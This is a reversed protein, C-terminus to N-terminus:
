LLSVSFDWGCKGRRVLMFRSDTEVVPCTVMIGVWTRFLCKIKYKIALQLINSNLYVFTAGPENYCLVIGRMILICCLFIAHNDNKFQCVLFVLQSCVTMGCVFHSVDGSKESSGSGNCM